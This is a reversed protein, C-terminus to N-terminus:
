RKGLTMAYSGAGLLATKPNLIIEVKVKALSSALRGKDLFAEMFLDKRFLKLNKPLIGGGLFLGGWALFKLAVNGAEAGCISFFLDMTRQCLCCQHNEACEHIVFARDERLLRERVEKSESEPHQHVFFDYINVIGQGSLVREYSVHGFRKRLFRLLEIEEENRPAFNVHGGECAFPIYANGTFYIGAEGLGTGPSLLARNGPVSQEGPVVLYLEEERLLPIGWANAELDNILFVSPVGIVSAISSGQIIWPLNTAKCSNNEIPGAIGLCAAQIHVDKPLFTQLISELNPYDKCLFQGEKFFRRSPVDELLALNAKTGGVDGALIM